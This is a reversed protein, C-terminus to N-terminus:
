GLNNMPYILDKYVELETIVTEKSQFITQYIIKEYSILNVWNECLQFVNDCPM